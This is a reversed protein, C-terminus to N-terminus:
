NENGIYTIRKVNARRLAQKVDMVMQMDVDKDCSIAVTMIQADEQSMKNQLDAVYDVMQNLSVIKNNLQLRYGDGVGNLPKGIYLHVISSKRGMKTLEKGDPVKYKVQVTDERMHTVIIFFFLVTFILDPLSATNLGPVEHNRRKIKIM